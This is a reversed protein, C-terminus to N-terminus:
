LDGFSQLLPRGEDDFGMQRMAGPVNRLDADVTSDHHRLVLWGLNNRDGVHM